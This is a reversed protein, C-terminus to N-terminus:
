KAQLHLYVIGVFRQYLSVLSDSTMFRFYLIHILVLSLYESDVM